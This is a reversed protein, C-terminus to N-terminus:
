AVADDTIEVPCDKRPDDFLAGQSKYLLIKVRDIFKAQITCQCTLFQLYELDDSTLMIAKAHAM